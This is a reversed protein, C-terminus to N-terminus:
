HRPHVDSPDPGSTTETLQNNAIHFESASSNPGRSDMTDENHHKDHFWSRVDNPPTRLGLDGLTEMQEEEVIPTPSRSVNSGVGQHQLEATNGPWPFEDCPVCRDCLLDFRPDAHNGVVQFQPKAIARLHLQQAKTPIAAFCIQTSVAWELHLAGEWIDVEFRYDLNELSHNWAAMICRPLPRSPDILVTSFAKWNGGGVSRLVITSSPRRGIRMTMFPWYSVQHCDVESPFPDKVSMTVSLHWITDILINKVELRSRFGFAKAMRRVAHTISASNQSLFFPQSISQFVHFSPSLSSLTTQAILFSLALLRRAKQHVNKSFNVISTIVSYIRGKCAM